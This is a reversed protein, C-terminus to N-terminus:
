IYFVFPENIGVTIFVLECFYFIVIYMLLIVIYMYSKMISHMHTENGFCTDNVDVVRPPIEM